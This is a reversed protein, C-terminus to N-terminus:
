NLHYCWRIRIIKNFERVCSYVVCQSGYFLLQVESLQLVGARSRSLVHLPNRLEPSFLLALSLSKIMVVLSRLWYVILLLCACADHLEIGIARVM